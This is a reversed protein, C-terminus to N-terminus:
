KEVFIANIILSIDKLEIENQLLFTDRILVFQTIAMYEYCMHWKVNFSIYGANWVRSNNGM